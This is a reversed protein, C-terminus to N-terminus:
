VNKITSIVVSGDGCGVAVKASENCFDISYVPKTLNTMVALPTVPNIRFFYSEDSGSGGIGFINDTKSFQATYVLCQKNFSQLNQTYINQGDLISWLQLQNGTHYSGTLLVNNKVDVSDGCVHPGFIERIRTAQRVDWLIVKNDWGASVLMNTDAWKLSFIRNNHGISYGQAPGLQSVLSKSNEDYIRIVTDKCGIAYFAADPSYECSYTQNFELYDQYMLRGSSAHWQFIGGDCNTSLLVNKTKGTAPKWRISTIPMTEGGRQCLLTRILGAESYIKISGDSCGVALMSDDPSWRVSMIELNEETLVRDIQLTVREM